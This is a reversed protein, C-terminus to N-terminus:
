DKVRKALMSRIFAQIALAIAGLLLALLLPILGQLAATVGNTFLEGFMVIYAPAIVSLGDLTHSAPVFLIVASIMRVYNKVDENLWYKSLKVVVYYMGVAALLYAVWAGLYTEYYAM